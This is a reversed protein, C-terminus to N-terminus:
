GEPEDDDHPWNEGQDMPRPETPWYDSEVDTRTNYTGEHINISPRFRPEISEFVEALHDSISDAEDASQYWGELVFHLHPPGDPEDTGRQPIDLHIRYAPITTM